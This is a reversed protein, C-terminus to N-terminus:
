WNVRFEASYITPDYQRIAYDGGRLTVDYSGVKVRTDTLNKGSLTFAWAKSEPKLTIRANVIDYGAQFSNKDLDLSLWHDGQYVYDAALAISLPGLPFEYSPTFSFTIEPAYILAKGTLDQTSADGDGDEDPDSGDETTYTNPGAAGPYSTYFAKTYGFSSVFNLGEIPPLWMFDAELGESRAEAANGVTFGTGNFSFVQLNAFDTQWVTTNLTASGGFLRGKFGIEKTFATEPDYELASDNYAQGNYGGGKFGKAVTAFMMLEDTIDWKASLKPSFDKEVRERTTEFAEAGLVVAAAGAPQADTDFFADKTEIGYRAGLILAFNDTTYWTSQGFLAQAFTNQKIFSRVQESIRPLGPVSVGTIAVVDNLLLYTDAHLDSQYFYLGSVIEVNGGLGFLSDTVGHFQFEQTVQKYIQLQPTELLDTPGFDADFNATQHFATIASVTVFRADNIGGLSGLEIDAIASSGTIKRDVFGDTNLSTQYNYPDDEVEPDSMRFSILTADSVNDLQFEYINQNLHGYDASLRVEANDFPITLKARTQLQDRNGLDDDRATNKTLADREWNIFAIRGEVGSNGLPGAVAGRIRQENYDGGMLDMYGTLEDSTSGSRINFVGAITNKGFLTGQPGRLIEVQEVDFMADSFYNNRGYFVDDVTLGVSSEFGPNQFSTGFGRIAVNAGSPDVEIKVNPTFLALDRFDQMNADKMYDGDIASVAVAVDRLGQESKQATVVVEEIIRRTRLPASTEEKTDDIQEASANNPKDRQDIGSVAPEGQDSHNGNSQGAPPPQDNTKSSDSSVSEETEDDEFLFDLDDDGTTNEAKEACLATPICLVIVATITLLRDLMPFSRLSWTKINKALFDGNKTSLISVGGM